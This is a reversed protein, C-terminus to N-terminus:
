PEFWKTDLSPLIQDACKDSYIFQLKLVPLNNVGDSSAEYYTIGINFDKSDCLKALRRLYDGESERKRM